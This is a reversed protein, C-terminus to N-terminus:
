GMLETQFTVAGADTTLTTTVIDGVIVTDPLKVSVSSLNTPDQVIIVADEVDCSWELVKTDYNDPRNNWSVPIGDAVADDRGYMNAGGLTQLPMVIAPNHFNIGRSVSFVETQTEDKWATTEKNVFAVGTDMDTTAGAPATFPIINVGPNLTVLGTISAFRGTPQADGQTTEVLKVQYPRTIGTANVLLFVSDGTNLNYHYRNNEDTLVDTASFKIQSLVLPELPLVEATTQIMIKGFYDLAWPAVKVEYVNGDKFHTVPLLLEDAFLLAEEGDLEADGNVAELIATVIDVPKLSEIKLIKDAPETIKLGVDTRPTSFRKQVSPQTPDLKGNTVISYVFKGLEPEGHTAIINIIDDETFDVEQGFVSKEIWHTLQLKLTATSDPDIAPDGVEWDEQAKINYEEVIAKPIRLPTKSLAEQKSQGLFQPFYNYTLGTPDAVLIEEADKFRSVLKEIFRLKDTQNDMIFQFRPLKAVTILMKM